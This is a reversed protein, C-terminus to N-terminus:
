CCRRPASAMDASSAKTSRRWAWRAWAAAAQLEHIEKPRRAWGLRQMGEAIAGSSVLVVEKGTGRLKAIQAAWRAIADHDLGKGDNTVLSSGV